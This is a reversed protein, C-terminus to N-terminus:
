DAHSGYVRELLEIYEAIPSLGVAARREDLAEEDAVPSLVLEGEANFTSQTGYVQPEGRSFVLVRDLLMAYSQGPLDGAHYAEEVLPLMQEQVESGAHQVLLFAANVGDAGVMEPTPWGYAEVIEVIRATNEADTERMEIHLPSEPNTYDAPTMRNRVDQDTDLRALLEARLAPESVDQAVAPVALFLALLGTLTKM